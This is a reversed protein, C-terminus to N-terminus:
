PHGGEIEQVARRLPEPVPAKHRAAYDYCVVVGEGEAVVRGQARSVIRHHMTLRDEGMEKVRTGVTVTDPFVVPSKYRCQISALIPAVGSQDLMQEMGLQVFYHIRGSEMWRIHVTNNVHGFADMDGWAVVIDLRSLYGDLLDTM